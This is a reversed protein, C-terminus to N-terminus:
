FEQGPYVIIVHSDTYDGYGNDAFGTSNDIDQLAGETSVNEIYYSSGSNNEPTCYCELAPNLDVEIVESYEPTEDNCVISYRYDTPEEIGEQIVYSNSHAGEIDTWDDEGAPSSQWQRTLGNAPDSADTVAITFASGTCVNLEPEVVIGPDVPETCDELELVEVMYDETEGYTASGCPDIDASSGYVLRVRLRYNGPEVQEPVTFEVESTGSGDMGQVYAIEEDDEFYGNNNYDIWVRFSESSPFSYDTSVSITYTEGPVLDPTSVDSDETYDGYSKESSTSDNNLIESEGELTVNSIRDGSTCGTTYEPVCYCENGPKLTVSVVDSYVPDDEECQVKYRFDTEEDIGEEITIIPGQNEESLDTWDEEGAPSSQWVRIL